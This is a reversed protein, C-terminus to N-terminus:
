KYVTIIKKKLISAEKKLNIATKYVNIIEDKKKFLVSINSFNATHNMKYM